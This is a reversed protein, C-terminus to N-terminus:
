FYIYESPCCYCPELSKVMLVVVRIPQFELPDNQVAGNSWLDVTAAVLISLPVVYEEAPSPLM